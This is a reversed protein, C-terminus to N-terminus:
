MEKDKTAPNNILKGEKDFRSGHCSCDWSHEWKNYTLACGMHPCRPTRLTLMGSLAEGINFALQPHFISRSPSYLDAYKSKKQCIMDSLKMAATMSSTMGWKNFGTAVYLDNTKDSYRGIYPIGDLTICDQTAWRGSVRSDPYYKKAVRELERWGGNEKGTRHGAGGLLLMNNYGRFSLGEDSADVYMDKFDAANELAIVYSRHQYMKLYYGGHKNIFPFHTAVIIKEARIKGKDTVATNNKIETVRTNEYIQLSNCIDFAFKLPHFKAQNEMKVAGKVKFPLETKECFEAKVGLKELAQVEKEAIGRDYMSYVYSNCIEFNNRLSAIKKIKEFAANQSEYYLYAKEVGYKKIIKDYIFGHQVTVKATTFGTVGGCIKDAEVLICDVGKNKLMYACLLGCMGGGIILADTELDETLSPYKKFRINKNWVSEM